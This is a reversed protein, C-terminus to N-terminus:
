CRHSFLTNFKSTTASVTNADQLQVDSLIAKPVSSSATTSVPIRRLRQFHPRNSHSNSLSYRNLLLKSSSFGLSSLARNQSIVISNAALAMEQVRARDSVGGGVLGAIRHYFILPISLRLPPFPSSLSSLINGSALSLILYRSWVVNNQTTQENKRLQMLPYKM